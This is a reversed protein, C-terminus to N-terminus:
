YRIHYVVAREAIAVGSMDCANQLKSICPLANASSFPTAFLMAGTRALIKLRDDLCLYGRIPFRGSYHGDRFSRAGIERKDM